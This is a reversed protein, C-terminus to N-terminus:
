EANGLLWQANSRSQLVIQANLRDNVALRQLAVERSQHNVNMHRLVLRQMALDMGVDLFWREDFLGAWDASDGWGDGQHLLYLGEIIIIKTQPPVSVQDAVPDGTGHEFGPWTVAKGSQSDSGRLALVRALFGPADFTWPAGRRLLAAAPDDFAALHAKSLHFGDMGLAVATGAGVRANVDTALQEALTSKGSGPLGALAILVRRQPNPALLQLLHSLPNSLIQLSM